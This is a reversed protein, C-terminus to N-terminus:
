GELTFTVEQTSIINGIRFKISINARNRDKMEDTMEIDVEEIFVYPLWFSVSAEITQQLKQELDTTMQEFLLEHLGTGFDPQMIREGRRTLLLNKLNSKAQEFSTFGQKFYGTEGRQVPLLIGYAHSDFEETDRVLKNQLVFAM